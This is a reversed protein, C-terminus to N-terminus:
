APVSSSAEARNDSNKRALQECWDKLGLNERSLARRVSGHILPWLLVAVFGTVDMRLRSQTGAQDPIIEHSAAM